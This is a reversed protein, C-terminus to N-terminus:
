PTSGGRLRPAIVADGFREVNALWAAANKVYRDTGATDWKHFLRTFGGDLILRKGDTDYFASVVNGESGYLFPQLNPILNITAITVGEYLFELGTSLLHNALVGSQGPGGSIQVTEDGMVNGNMSTGILANAILNADAYFPENDGWIYVGHGDEFFNRIVEIHAPPLWSDNASIIWLQNATALERELDELLPTEAGAWRRVNFGKETLAGTPLAFDFNEKTYFHLVVITQGEFAGDMALDYQPGEMNGYTNTEPEREIIETTTTGDDNVVVVECKEVTNPPRNLGANPNYAPTLQEGEVWCRPGTRTKGFGGGEDDTAADRSAEVDTPTTTSWGRPTSELQNGIIFCGSVAVSVAVMWGIWVRKM